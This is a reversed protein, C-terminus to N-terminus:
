LGALYFRFQLVISLSSCHFHVSPLVHRISKMDSSLSSSARSLTYRLPFPQGGRQSFLVAPCLPSPRFKLQQFLTSSCQHLVGTRSIPSPAPPTLAVLSSIVSTILLELLQLSCIVCSGERVLVISPQFPRPCACVVEQM